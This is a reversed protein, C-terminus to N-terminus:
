RAYKSERVKSLEELTSCGYLKLVQNEIDQMDFLDISGKDKEGWTYPRRQNMWVVRNEHAVKVYLRQLPGDKSGKPIFTSTWAWCNTIKTPIKATVCKDCNEKKELYEDVFMRLLRTTAIVDDMSNHFTLGYDLGFYEALTGLKHSGTETKLHLEQAMKLTDLANAKLEKGQRAYMAKLMGVDFPVNHGCVLPEDGFFEYIAPWQINESPYDALKDDTIGTINVIKKPLPYGPNIYTDLRGVEHFQCKGDINCKIASIQIIHNLEASLGTTETDFIIVDKGKNQNLTEIVKQGVGFDRWWKKEEKKAMVLQRPM